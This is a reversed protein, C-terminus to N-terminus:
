KQAKVLFEINKKEIDNLLEEERSAFEEKSYIPNYWGKSKFYKGNSGGFERGERAYIENIAMQLDSISMGAIDEETLLKSDSYPFIYDDEFPITASTPSETKQELHVETTEVAPSETEAVTQPKQKIPVRILSLSILIVLVLLVIILYKGILDPYKESKGDKSNALQNGELRVPSTDVKVVREDNAYADSRNEFKAGKGLNCEECLTRLNSMVTRGGRSVPIVHDVHLIVGDNASRGCLQCRYGDRRLVDYRMSKTLLSREYDKSQQYVYKSNCANLLGVLTDFDIHYTKQYSNRGKPSIYHCLVEAETETVPHLTRNCLEAKEIYRYLFDPVPSGGKSFEAATLSAKIRDVEAMYSAYTDRNHKIKGIENDYYQKNELLYGLMQNQLNFNAFDQKSNMSFGFALKSNLDAFFATKSNLQNIGNIRESTAIVSNRAVYYLATIVCCIAFLFLLTTTLQNQDM